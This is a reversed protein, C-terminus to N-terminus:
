LDLLFENFDDLRDQLLSNGFAIGQVVEVTEEMIELVPVDKIREVTRQQLRERPGSDHVENAQSM